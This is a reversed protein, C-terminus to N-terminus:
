DIKDENTKQSSPVEKMETSRDTASRRIECKVSTMKPESKQLGASKAALTRLRAQGPSRKSETSSNGNPEIQAQAAAVSGYVDARAQNVARGLGLRESPLNSM